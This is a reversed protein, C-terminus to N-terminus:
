DDHQVDHETCKAHDVNDQICCGSQRCEFPFNSFSHFCLRGMLSIFLLHAGTSGSADLTLADCAGLTQPAVLSMQVAFMVLHSHIIHIFITEVNWLCEYRWLHGGFVRFVSILGAVVFHKRSLVHVVDRWIFQVHEFSVHRIFEDFWHCQLLLGCSVDNACVHRRQRVSSGGSVSDSCLEGRWLVHWGSVNHKSQRWVFQCVRRQLLLWRQVRGDRCVIRDVRLLIWSYVVRWVVFRVASLVYRRWVVCSVLQGPRLVDDLSLGRADVVIIGIPLLLWWFM